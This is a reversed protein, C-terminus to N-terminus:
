KRIDPLKKDFFETIRISETKLDKIKNFARLEM